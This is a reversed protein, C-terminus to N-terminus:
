GHSRNRAHHLSCLAVTQRFIVCGALAGVADAALDWWEATRGTQAALQLIEMLGGYAIALCAAYIGARQSGACHILLYQAVVLALLAYAAAHLLKDWGLIGPLTPPSATLSLWLIIGAWIVPLALRGLYGADFPHRPRNDPKDLM